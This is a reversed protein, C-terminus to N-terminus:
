YHAGPGTPREPLATVGQHLSPDRSGIIERARGRPSFILAEMNTAAGLRARSLHGMDGEDGM